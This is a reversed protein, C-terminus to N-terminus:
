RRAEPLLPGDPSLLSALPNGQVLGCVTRAPVRTRM